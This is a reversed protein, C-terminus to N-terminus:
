VNVDFSLLSQRVMNYDYDKKAVWLFCLFHHFTFVINTTFHPPNTHSDRLMLFSAVRYDYGVPVFCFTYIVYM